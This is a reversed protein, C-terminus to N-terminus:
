VVTLASIARRTDSASGCSSAEYDVKRRNETPTYGKVKITSAEHQRVGGEPPV